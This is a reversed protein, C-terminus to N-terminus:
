EEVSDSDQKVQKATKNTTDEKNPIKGPTLKEVEDVKEKKPKNVIALINRFGNYLSWVILAGLNFTLTFKFLPEAATINIQYLIYPIIVFRIVVYIVMDVTRILKFVAHPPGYFKVYVMELISRANLIWSNTELTFVMFALQCAYKQTFLGSLFCGISLIHHILYLPTHHLVTLIGGFIMYSLSFLLGFNDSFTAISHGTGLVYAVSNPYWIYLCSSAHFLSMLWHGFEDEPKFYHDFLRRLVNYIIAWFTLLAFFILIYQDRESLDHLKDM